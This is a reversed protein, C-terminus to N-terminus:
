SESFVMKLMNLLNPRRWEGAKTENLISRVDSTEYGNYQALIHEVMRLRLAATTTGAKTNDIDISAITQEVM